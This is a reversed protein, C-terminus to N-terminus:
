GKLGCQVTPAVHDAAQVGMPGNFVLENPPPPGPWVAQGYENTPGGAAGQQQGNWQCQGQWQQPPCVYQVSNGYAQQAPFGGVPVVFGGSTGYAQQPPLGGAPVVFLTDHEEDDTNDPLEEEGCSFRVFLFVSCCLLVGSGILMWIAAEHSSRSTPRGRRNYGYTVHNEHQLMVVAGATLGAVVVLAAIAQLLDSKGKTYM